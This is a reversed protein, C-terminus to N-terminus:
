IGPVRIDAIELSDADPKAGTVGTIGTLGDSMDAMAAASTVELEKDKNKADLNGQKTALADQAILEWPSSTGVRSDLLALFREDKAPLDVKPSFSDMKARNKLWGGYSVKAAPYDGALKLFGQGVGLDGFESPMVIWKESDMKTIGAGDRAENVSLAQNQNTSEVEMKGIFEAARKQM